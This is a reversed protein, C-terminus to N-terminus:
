TASTRQGRLGWKVEKSEIAWKVIEKWTMQGEAWRGFGLRGEGGDEVAEEDESLGYFAVLAVAVVIDATLGWVPSPTATPHSFHHLRYLRDELWVLDESLHLLLEAGPSDPTSPSPKPNPTASSPHPPPLGLFAKLPLHFIADM